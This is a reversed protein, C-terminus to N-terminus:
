TRSALGKSASGAQQHGLGDFCVGGETSWAGPRSTSGAQSIPGALARSAIGAGSGAWRLLTWRRGVLGRFSFTSDM